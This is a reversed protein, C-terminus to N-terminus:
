NLKLSMGEELGAPIKKCSGCLFTTCSNPRKKNENKYKQYDTCKKCFHEFKKYIDKSQYNELTIQEYEKKLYFCGNRNDKNNPEHPKRKRCDFNDCLHAAECIIKFTM